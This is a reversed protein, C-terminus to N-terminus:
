IDEWDDWQIPCNLKPYWREEIFDCVDHGCATEYSNMSLVAVYIYSRQKKSRHLQSSSPEIFWSCVLNQRPQEDSPWVTHKQIASLIQESLWPYINHKNQPLPGYLLGVIVNLLKQRSVFAEGTWHNRCWFKEWDHLIGAAPMYIQVMLRGFTEACHGVSIFAYVSLTRRHYM